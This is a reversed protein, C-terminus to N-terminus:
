VCVTVSNEGWCLRESNVRRERKRLRRRTSSGSSKSSTWTSQRSSLYTHPSRVVPSTRTSLPTTEYKLAVRARGMSATFKDPFISHGTPSFDFCALTIMYNPLESFVLDIAGVSVGLAFDSFGHHTRRNTASALLASRTRRGCVLMKQLRPPAPLLTLADM